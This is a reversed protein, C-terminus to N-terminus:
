KKVEVSVVKIHEIGGERYARAIALENVYSRDQAEIEYTRRETGLSGIAGEKRATIKVIYTTIM